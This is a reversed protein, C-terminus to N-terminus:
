FLYVNSMINIPHIISTVFISKNNFAFLQLYRCILIIFLLLIIDIIVKILPMDAPYIQLVVELKRARVFEGLTKNALPSIPAPGSSFRRHSMPVIYTNGNGLSNNSTQAYYSRRWKRFPVVNMDINEIVSYPRLLTSTSGDSTNVAINTGVSGSTFSASKIHLNIDGHNSNLLMENKVDDSQNRRCNVTPARIQNISINNNFTANGLFPSKNHRLM